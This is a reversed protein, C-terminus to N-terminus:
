TPQYSTPPDLAGVYELVRLVGDNLEAVEALGDTNVVEAATTNLM